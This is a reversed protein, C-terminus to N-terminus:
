WNRIESLRISISIMKMQMERFVPLMISRKKFRSSSSSLRKLGTWSQTVGYITAWWAGRGWSEGPLFVPTPQWKRRWHMFTFVEPPVLEVGPQLVFIRCASHHPWFIIFILFLLVCVSVPVKCYVKSSHGECSPGVAM